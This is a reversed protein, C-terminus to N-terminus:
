SEKVSKRLNSILVEAKQFHSGDTDTSTLIISTGEFDAFYSVQYASCDSARIGSAPSTIVKVLSYQGTTYSYLTVSAKKGNPCCCRLKRYSQSSLIFEVVAWCEM